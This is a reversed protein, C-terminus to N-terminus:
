KWIPIWLWVTKRLCVSLNKCKSYFNMSNELISHVTNWAYINSIPSSPLKPPTMNDIAVNHYRIKCYKEYWHCNWVWLIELDIEYWLKVNIVISKMPFHNRLIWLHSKKSLQFKIDLMWYFFYLSGDYWYWNVTFSWPKTERITAAPSNTKEESFLQYNPLLGIITFWSKFSM